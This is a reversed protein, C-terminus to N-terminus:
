MLFDCNALPTELLALQEEALLNPASALTALRTSRTTYHSHSHSLPSSSSKIPMTQHPAPTRPSATTTQNSNPTRPDLNSGIRAIRGNEREWDEGEGEQVEGGKDISEEESEGEGDGESSGGDGETDDSASGDDNDNDNDDDDDDDMSSGDSRVEEDEFDFDSTPAATIPSTPVEHPYNDPVVRDRLYALSPAYDEETFIDPKFPWHGMVEWSKSITTEKMGEQRAEMYAKIVTQLTIVNRAIACEECLKAWAAQIAAFVLRDLPQLKHTTKSPLCILFINNKFAIDRMEDSVHSQHGDLLLIIPKSLTNLAMAQPM